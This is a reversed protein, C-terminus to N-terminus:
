LSHKGMQKNVTRMDSAAPTTWALALALFVAEWMSLLAWGTSVAAGAERDRCLWTSFSLTLGLGWPKAVLTAIGLLMKVLGLDAGIGEVLPNLRKTNMTIVVRSLREM